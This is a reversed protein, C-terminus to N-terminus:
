GLCVWFHFSRKGINLRQTATDVECRAIDLLGLEM